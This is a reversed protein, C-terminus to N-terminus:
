YKIFTNKLNIDWDCKELMKCSFCNRSIKDALNIIEVLNSNNKRITKCRHLLIANKIIDIEDKKYGCRELIVVAIEASAIEHPVSHEYQKWKGIDHLLATAYIIDKNISLNNELNIIYAIRAVDLFHKITHKCYKRKKELSKIKNINAKYQNDFLISNIRDM